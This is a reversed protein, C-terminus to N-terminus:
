EGARGTMALCPVHHQQGRRVPDCVEVSKGFNSSPHVKSLKVCCPQNTWVGELLPRCIFLLVWYNKEFYESMPITETIGPLTYKQLELLNLRSKWQVASVQSKYLLYIYMSSGSFCSILWLRHLFSSRLASLMMQLLSSFCPQACCTSVSGLLNHSTVHSGLNLLM